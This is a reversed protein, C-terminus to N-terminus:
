LTLAYQDIIIKLNNSERSEDPFEKWILENISLIHENVTIKIRGEWKWENVYILDGKINTIDLPRSEISIISSLENRSLDVFVIAAQVLSAKEKQYFFKFSFLTEKYWIITKEGYVLCGVPHFYDNLCVVGDKLDFVLMTGFITNMRMEMQNYVCVAYTQEKNCFTSNPLGERFDAQKKLFVRYPFKTKNPSYSM